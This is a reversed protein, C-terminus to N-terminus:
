FKFRPTLYIDSTTYVFMCCLFNGNIIIEFYTQLKLKSITISYQTPLHYRAHVVWDIPPPGVLHGRGGLASSANCMVMARYVTTYVAMTMMQPRKGCRDCMPWFARTCARGLQPAPPQLLYPWGCWTCDHWMIVCTIVWTRWGEKLLIKVLCVSQVKQGRERGRLCSSPLPM